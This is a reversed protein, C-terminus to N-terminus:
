VGGGVPVTKSQTKKERNPLCLAAEVVLAVIMSGMFFRWIEQILSGLNGASDDVRSFDLGAFLEQLQKDEVTGPADEDIPRNIVVTRGSDSDGGPLNGGPHGGVSYVGAQFPFEQPHANEAGMLREWTSVDEGAGGGAPLLRITKLAESGIALARQIMVYLVVGNSALTSDGVAPTTSCFYIGGRDTPVRTLLPIGGTLNALPTTGTKSDGVATPSCYRRVSLQGVPLATGSLTKALVDEDGRWNEVKLGDTVEVWEGWRQGAFAATTPAKPPFFFVEGGRDVFDQLLKADNEEPLQIQWLVTGIKEWEVTPLQELPVIDASCKIRAEPPIEAALKLPVSIGENEAVILTRREPPPGYALYFTNDGPNVDAPISVLGWGREQHQELPIRHDKMEYESGEIEVEVVSRAGDIDFQIPIKVVGTADGSRTVKLSVLLVAQEGGVRKLDTVRLSLNDNATGPYALLHIRVGQPMAALSDRITKWRGSEPDWDNGRLDSCIWIETRGAKNEQIYDRAAELMAPIDAAASTPETEGLKLLSEPSEIERPKNQTSEILIWKASSLLGLTRVLQHRSTELKSVATGEGLQQMSASRDLLILTADARGGAAQGLWGSSLPRSIAFILGAVALMRFLMILWQRLRTYGRSMQQAALLFMMAGWRITQFRRQNILHIIIPLSVLPLAALMLPQLFNM